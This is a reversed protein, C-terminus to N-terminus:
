KVRVIYVNKASQVVAQVNGAPVMFEVVSPIKSAQAGALLGEGSEGPYVPDGQSDYAGIVTVNQVLLVSQGGQSGNQVGYVDVTDGAVVMDSSSQNVPVSVSVMGVPLGPAGTLENEYILDGAMISTSLTKGNVATSLGTLSAPVQVAKVDTSVITSRLPIYSTAEYATVTKSANAYKGNAQYVILLTAVLAVLIAAIIIFVKKRDM